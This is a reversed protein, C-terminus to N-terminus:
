LCNSFVSVPDLLDYGSNDHWAITSLDYFAYCLRWRFAVAVYAILVVVSALEACRYRRLSFLVYGAGAIVSVKFALLAMPGFQLISRAIPNAEELIGDAHARMTLVLDFMNIVCIALVFLAVRRGRAPAGVDISPGGQRLAPIMSLHVDGVTAVALEVAPLPQAAPINGTVMANFDSGPAIPM